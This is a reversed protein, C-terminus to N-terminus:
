VPEHLWGRRVAIQDGSADSLPVIRFQDPPRAQLTVAAERLVGHRFMTLTVMEGPSFTELRSDLDARTVRVQNMAIIEDGPCIDAGYAPGDSLVAEVIPFQGDRAFRIGLHPRALDGSTAPELRLGAKPLVENWEIEGVRRVYREFLGSLEVGVAAGALEEFGDEPIGNSRVREDNWLARLVDDLSKRGGTKERVTLDLLAGVLAGKLYYSVTTNDTNEDPRYYKIWADFSADELSQMSRGPTRQLQNIDIALRELYRERSILGARLLVRDAYYETIGEMLWLLRTHQEVSYDFSSLVQPRIRKVMWAHFHEHAEISLFREYNKRPKFTLGPLLCTNSDRHELGGAGGEALLLLFAYRDYPLGGFIESAASVIRTLDNRIEVPDFNGTGSIAVVHTRGHVDSELLTLRGCLVPSDVLEDYGDVEFRGDGIARMSTCLQWEPPTEVDVQLPIDRLGDVFMFTPAGNILCRDADLYNTRVTLDRAYLRYRVTVPGDGTREVRWRNKRTKRFPLAAGTADQATFDQVHREYERVL